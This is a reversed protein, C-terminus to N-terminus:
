GDRPGCGRQLSPLTLSPQISSTANIYGEYIVPTGQFATDSITRCLHRRFFFILRSASQVSSSPMICGRWSPSPVMLCPFTPSFVSPRPYCMRLTQQSSPLARMKMSTPTVVGAPHSGRPPPPLFGRHPLVHVDVRPRARQLCFWVRCLACPARPLPAQTTAIAARSAAHTLFLTM